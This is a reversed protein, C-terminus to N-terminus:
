RQKGATAWYRGCKIVDNYSQRDNHLLPDKSAEYKTEQDILGFYLKEYEEYSCYSTLQSTPWTLPLPLGLWNRYEIFRVYIHLPLRGFM